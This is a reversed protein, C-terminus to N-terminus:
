IIRYTKNSRIHTLSDYLPYPYVRGEAGQSQRGFYFMPNPEPEGALYTPLAIREERVTVSAANASVFVFGSMTAACLGRFLASCVRSPKMLALRDPSKM